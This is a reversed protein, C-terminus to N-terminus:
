GWKSIIGPVEALREVVADADEGARAAEEWSAGHM